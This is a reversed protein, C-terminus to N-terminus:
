GEVATRTLAGRMAALVRPEDELPEFPDGTVFIRDQLLAQHVLMGLGSHATGGAEAWALALASPWPAYSVDYLVASRRVDAPFDVGPVAGGPLTSIVLQSERDPDRALTLAGPRVVVGLNAGLEVLPTGSGPTRALVDVTEAGLEAAAMVASAATAGAGLVTVHAAHTVGADALARVLGPVDTNFGQLRLRGDSYGLLVTNVSGTLRAVRDADDLRALVEHKLPMTLSLGRWDHGLGLLFRRLTGAPVDVADYRWDLGLAGFAARHLVPSRSHGIPSGLVAFRPRRSEGATSPTDAESPTDAM